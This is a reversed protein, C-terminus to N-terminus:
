FKNLITKKFNLCVARRRKQSEDINNRLQFVYIDPNPWESQIALPIEHSHLKREGLFLAIYSVFSCYTHCIVFFLVSSKCKRSPCVEYLAFKSPRENLNYYNLLLQILDEVTTRDSL